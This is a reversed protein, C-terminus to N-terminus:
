TRRRQATDWAAKRQVTSRSALRSGMREAFRPPTGRTFADVIGTWITSVSDTREYTPMTVAGSSGALRSAGSISHNGGVNAENWDFIFGQDSVFAIGEIHIISVLSLVLAGDTSTTVGTPTFSTASTASTVATVDYGAVGRAVFGFTSWGNTTSSISGIPSGQWTAADVIRTMEIGHLNSTGSRLKARETWDTMTITVSSASSRSTVALGLIDGDEWVDPYWSQMTSATTRLPLSVEDIVPDDPVLPLAVDDALALVMAVGNNSDSLTVSGTGTAGAADWKGSAVGLIVDNSTIESNADVRETLAVNPMQWGSLSSASNTAQVAALAVIHSHADVTTLGPLAITGGSATTGRATQKFPSGTTKCGRFGVIAWAHNSTLSHTVTPASESAGARKWWIHLSSTTSPIYQMRMWGSVSTSATVDVRTVAVLILVDGEATGSPLGITTSASTPNVVLTGAGVYSIV